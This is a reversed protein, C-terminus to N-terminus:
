GNEGSGEDLLGHKAARYQLTRRSLGLMRAAQTQVGGSRQLAGRILERELADLDLPADLLESILDGSHRGGGLSSLQLDHATIQQGRALVVAREITNQLERVNGPWGHRELHELADRSFGELSRGNRACYLELFYNALLKVDAGRQRLPPLDIPIVHIRYYLDERFGGGRVIEELDRHTAALVRVDIEVPGSGGVPEIEREQLARLLKVQLALPLEGIEDLFITGGDAQRFRGPRDAVAGTFAGAVHGFLESEHLGEPIAACNVKVFPALARPSGRHIAQAVLEKGTGSEGRILVTADSPAVQAIRDLVERMPESDGIIQRDAALSAVRERLARNERRLEIAEAARTLTAHLIDLNVPKEVYDYVGSRIAEVAQEITGYATVLVFVIGLDAERVANFLEIGTMGPMRSDSICLDFRGSCLEELAAAGGTAAEASYGDVELLKRLAEAQHPEDDVVLIRLPTPTM